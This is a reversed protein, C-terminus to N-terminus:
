ATMKSARAPDFATGSKLVGYAIMVLKRMAPGAGAVGPEAARGRGGGPGARRGSGEAVCRAGRDRGRRGEAHGAAGPEGRGGADLHAAPPPGPTGGARGPRRRRRRDPSPGVVAAVHALVVADGDLVQHRPGPRRRGARCRRWRGPWPCSGCRSAGPRPRTLRGGARSTRGISLLRNGTNGSNGRTQHGGRSRAARTVGRGSRRRRTGTRLPHGPRPLLYCPAM